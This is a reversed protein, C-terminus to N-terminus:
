GYPVVMQYTYLCVLMLFYPSVKLSSSNANSKSTPTSALSATLTSISAPPKKKQDKPIEPSADMTSSSQKNNNEKEIELLRASVPETCRQMDAATIGFTSHHKTCFEMAAASASTDVPNYVVDYRNGAIDLVAKVTRDKAVQSIPKPPKATNKELFKDVENELYKSLTRVCNAKEASQDVLNLKEKCFKLAMYRADEYTAPFDLVLEKEGYKIPASVM